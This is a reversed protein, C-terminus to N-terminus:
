LGIGALGSMAYKKIDAEYKKFLRVNEEPARMMEAGQRMKEALEEGAGPINRVMQDAGQQMTDAPQQGTGHNEAEAMGAWASKYVAVSIYRYETENMGQEAMGKVQALRIDSVLRAMISAAELTESVSLDKKGETRKSLSEIEPQHAEYIVYVGKRVGLFKVLREEQLVGGAPETFSNVNAQKEYRSIEEAKAAVEGTFQEAKGKVWFAGGVIAVVVVVAGLFAAVGCGLLIKVGKTM